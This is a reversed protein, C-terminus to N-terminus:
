ARRHHSPTPKLHARDVRTSFIPAQPHSSRRADPKSGMSRAGNSAAADLQELHRALVMTRYADEAQVLVRREHERNRPPLPPMDSHGARLAIDRYKKATLGTPTWRYDTDHTLLHWALVALKRAVAVLAIRSGRRSKIREYFAHLPGHARVASHAAEILMARAHAQGQRSIHGTRAPKDGSQRVRPDLGLYGVLQNPRPFRSVDGVVAVIALATVLGIGPITLLHAVGADSTALEALPQELADLETRVATLLRLASEVQSREEAPLPQESLWGRGSKGFLDTYPCDLLNRGLIAHIRNRLRTQEHVLSARQAIQRRLARLQQNPVWVEALFDSALLRALVEADVKDTKVKASAIAKTKMPNSVVVRGSRNRILDVLTWTNFTSELAVQDDPKLGDVFARLEAPTTAIRQRKLSRGPEVIAVEAFHKHVDLGISRM